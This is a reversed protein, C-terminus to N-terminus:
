SAINWTMLPDCTKLNVIDIRDTRFTEALDCWFEMSDFKKPENPMVAIDIDSENHLRKSIQSGFLIILSLDHKRALETFRSSASDLDPKRLLRGLAEETVSDFPDTIANM